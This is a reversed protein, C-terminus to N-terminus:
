QRELAESEQQPIYRGTCSNTYRSNILFCFLVFVCFLRFWCCFNFIFGVFCVCLCVLVLNKEWWFCIFENLAWKLRKFRKFGTKVKGLKRRNLECKNQKKKTNKSQKNKSRKGCKDRYWRFQSRRQSWSKRQEIWKCLWPLSPTRSLLM